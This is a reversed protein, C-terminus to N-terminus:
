AFTAGAFFENRAGNVKTPGHRFSRKDGDIATREYWSQHFAFKEAVFLTCEGTGHFRFGSEELGRVAAGNEQIFDAFQREFHLGFEQAHELFTFDTRDAAILAVANVNAYDGCCVAVELTGIAFACKTFIQVESEVDHSNMQRRQAFPTRIDGHKHVMKQIAISGSGIQM